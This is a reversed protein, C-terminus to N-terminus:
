RYYIECTGFSFSSSDGYYDDIVKEHWSGAYSYTFRGTMVNFQFTRAIDNQYCNISAAKDTKWTGCGNGLMYSTGDNPDDRPERIFYSGKETTMTGFVQLQLYQKELENRKLIELEQNSLQKQQNIAKETTSALMRLIAKEPINSIHVLFFEEDPKYRTLNHGTANHNYGGKEEAVCKYDHKCVSKSQYDESLTPTAIFLAIIAFNKIKFM